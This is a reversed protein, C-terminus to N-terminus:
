TVEINVLQKVTYIPIFLFYYTTVYHTEVIRSKSLEDTRATRSRHQIRRIM